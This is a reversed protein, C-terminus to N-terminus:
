RDEPDNERLELTRRLVPLMARDKDRNAREKSAIVEALGLVRIRLGAIEQVEAATLLDAYTAGAGIETMLDLPGLDTTLLNTRHSALRERTPEIVRGAPDRYRAGLSRLCRELRELNEPDRDYVVDLDLTSVPAGALIAAVGGVVICDVEHEALSRLLGLYSTRM